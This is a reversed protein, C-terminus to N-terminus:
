CATRSVWGLVLAHLNSADVLRDRWRAGLCAPLPVRLFASPIHVVEDLPRAVRELGAVLIRGTREDRVRHGYEGGFSGFTFFAIFALFTMGSHLLVAGRVRSRIPSGSAVRVSVAPHIAFPQGILGILVRGRLRDILLLGIKVV